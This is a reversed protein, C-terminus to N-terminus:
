ASMAIYMVAIRVDNYDNDNGKEATNGLPWDVGETPNKTYTSHYNTNLFKGVTHICPYIYSLATSLIITHIVNHCM